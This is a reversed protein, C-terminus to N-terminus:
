PFFTHIFFIKGRMLFSITHMLKIIHEQKQLSMVPPLLPYMFTHFKLLPWQIFVNFFPPYLKNWRQLFAYIHFYIHVKKWKGDSPLHWCTHSQVKRLTWPFEHTIIHYKGITWYLKSEMSLKHLKQRFIHPQQRFLGSSQCKSPSYILDM